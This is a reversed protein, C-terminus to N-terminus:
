THTPIGYRRLLEEQVMAQPRLLRGSPTEGDMPINLLVIANADLNPM